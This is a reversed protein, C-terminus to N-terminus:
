LSGPTPMTPAPRTAAGMPQKSRANSASLANASSDQGAIVLGNGAPDQVFWGEPRPAVALRAADLRALLAELGAEDPVVLTWFRLGAADPPAPPAGVGAWTNLGVHHHYGGASVFAASPGYRQVLDLGLVNCYFELAPQIAAVHLHVHGMVAGAPAADWRAGDSETLALLGQADLPDTVMQLAGGQRPWESRPRDRYVEIGNGDPDALYVAESVGHDAWGQLPQGIELVHRLWRALDLRTPLLVAVHYLGTARAPKPRAGPLEVLHLLPTAGAYLMAEGPAHSVPTLGLGHTYFDLSRNLDAVTLSVCGVHCSAPLVASM